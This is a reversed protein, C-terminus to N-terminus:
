GVLTSTVKTERKPRGSHLRKCRFAVNAGVIKQNKRNEPSTLREWGDHPIGRCAIQVSAPPSARDAVGAVVITPPADPLPPEPFMDDPILGVQLSVEIVDVMIGDLM